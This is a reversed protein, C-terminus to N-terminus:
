SKKKVIQLERVMKEAEVTMQCIEDIATIDKNSFGIDKKRYNVSIKIRQLNYVCDTLDIFLKGKSEVAFQIRSFQKRARDSLEQIQQDM